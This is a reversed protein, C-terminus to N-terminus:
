RRVELRHTWEFRPVETDCLWDELPGLRAHDLPNGQARVQGTGGYGRRRSRWSRASCWRSAPGSGRRGGIVLALRGGDAVPGGNRLPSVVDKVRFALTLGGPAQGDEGFVAAARSAVPYLSM